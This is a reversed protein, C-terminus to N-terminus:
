KKVRIIDIKLHPKNEIMIKNVKVSLKEDDKLKDLESAIGKDIVSQVMDLYSNNLSPNHETIKKEGANVLQSIAENYLKDSLSEKDM